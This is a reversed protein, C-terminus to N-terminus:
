RITKAEDQWRTAATEDSDRSEVWRDGDAHTGGTMVMESMGGLMLLSVESPDSRPDDVDVVICQGNLAAYTLGEGVDGVVVRVRANDAYRESLREALGGTLM